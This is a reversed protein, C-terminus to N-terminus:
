AYKMRRPRLNKRTEDPIYDWITWHFNVSTEFYRTAEMKLTSSHAYAVCVLLLFCVVIVRQAKLKSSAQKDNEKVRFISTNSEVSVEM